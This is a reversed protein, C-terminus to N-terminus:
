ECETLAQYAKLMEIVDGSIMAEEGGSIRRRLMAAGFGGTPIDEYLKLLERCRNMEEILGQVLNKPQTETNM